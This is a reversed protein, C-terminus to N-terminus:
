SLSFWGAHVVSIAWVGEGWTAPFVLPSISLIPSKTVSHLDPPLKAAPIVGLPGTIGCCLGSFSLFIPSIALYICELLLQTIHLFFTFRTSPVAPPHSRIILVSISIFLPMLPPSNVRLCVFCKCTPKNSVTNNETELTALAGLSGHGRPLLAFPPEGCCSKSHCAWGDKWMFASTQWLDSVVNLVCSHQINSFSCCCRIDQM